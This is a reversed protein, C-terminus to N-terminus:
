LPVLSVERWKGGLGVYFKGSALSVFAGNRVEAPLAKLEDARLSGATGDFSGLKGIYDEMPKARQELSRQTVAREFADGRTGLRTESVERLTEVARALEATTANARVAQPTPLRAPQKANPGRATLRNQSM